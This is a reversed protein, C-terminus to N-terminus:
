FMLVLRGYNFATDALSVANLEVIGGDEGRFGSVDLSNKLFAV